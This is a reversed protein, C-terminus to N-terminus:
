ENDRNANSGRAARQIRAVHTKSIGLTKAIDRQYHGKKTMALVEEEKTKLLIFSEKLSNYKEAFVLDTDLKRRVDFESPEGNKGRTASCANKAHEMKELFLEWDIGEIRANSKAKLKRLGAKAYRRMHNVHYVPHPRKPSHQAKWMLEADLVNLSEDGEDIRKQLAAKQRLRTAHAVLGRGMPLGFRKKYEFVSIGHMCALHKGGVAKFLKHCILCEIKDGSFYEDVEARTQFKM